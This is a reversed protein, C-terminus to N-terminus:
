ALSLMKGKKYKKYEGPSLGTKKKFIKCFYSRDKFGTQDAILDINQDTELLLRKAQEIRVKHIYDVISYGMWKKFLQGLYAPNM